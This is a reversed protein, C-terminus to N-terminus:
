VRLMRRQTSFSATRHDASASLVRGLPLNGQSLEDQMTSRSTSVTM